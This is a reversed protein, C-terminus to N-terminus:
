RMGIIVRAELPRCIALYRSVAMVVTLWTSTTVLTSIVAGNYVHFLLMFSMGEYQGKEFDYVSYPIVALCFFLDSVALALLGITASREMRDMPKNVLISALAILNLMNGVLGCGCIAVIVHNLLLKELRVYINSESSNTSNNNLYTAYEDSENNICSM